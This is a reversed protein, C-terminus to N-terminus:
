SAKEAEKARLVSPLADLGFMHIALTISQLEAIMQANSMPTEAAELREILTEGGQGQATM